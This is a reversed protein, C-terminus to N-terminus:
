SRGQFFARPEYVFVRRVVDAAVLVHFLAIDFLAKHLRVLDKFVAKGKGHDIMIGQLRVGNNSPETVFPDRDPGRRLMRELDPSIDGLNETNMRGLYPHDNREQAAAEAALRIRLKLRQYNGQRALGSTRHSNAVGNRFGHESNASM